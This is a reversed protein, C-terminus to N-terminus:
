STLAAEIANVCSECRKTCDVEPVHNTCAQDGYGPCPWFWEDFPEGSERWQAIYTELGRRNMDDSAVRFTEGRIPIHIFPIM